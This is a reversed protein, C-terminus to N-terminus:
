HSAQGRRRQRLDVRLVSCDAGRKGRYRAQCRVACSFMCNLLNLSSVALMLTKGLDLLQTAVNLLGIRCCKMLVTEDYEDVLEFDAGLEALM